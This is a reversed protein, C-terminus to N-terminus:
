DIKHSKVYKEFEKFTKNLTPEDRVQCKAYLVTAHNKNVLSGIKSLSNKTYREGFAMYMFRADVVERKRNKSKLTSEEIEFYKSTFHLIVPLSLNAILELKNLIYEKVEETEKEGTVITMIHNKLIVGQTGGVIKLLDFINEKENDAYYINSVYLGHMKTTFMLM